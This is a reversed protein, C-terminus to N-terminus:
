AFGAQEQAPVAASILRYRGHWLLAAQLIPKMSKSAMDMAQRGNTDCAVALSPDATALSEVTAMLTQFLKAVNDGVNVSPVEQLVMQFWVFCSNRRLTAATFAKTTLFILKTKWDFNDMFTKGNVDASILAGADQLSGYVLCAATCPFVLVILFRFM